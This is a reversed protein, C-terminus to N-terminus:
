NDHAGEAIWDHLQQIEQDSLFPPGNLPMRSGYPPADGVKQVIISDCPAGPRVIDSGSVAGGELLSRYSAFSLGALEFGVANMDGPDHCSCGRQLIPHVDSSFFVDVDPDSDDSSCQGAIVPGVDPEVAGLCGVLLLLSGAACWGYRSM